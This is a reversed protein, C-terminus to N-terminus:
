NRSEEVAKRTAALYAYGYRQDPELHAGEAWENWANIFVFREQEPQTKKAYTICDKLWETYLDPTCGVYVAGNSFTKRASNDWSPFCGKYLIGGEPAPMTMYEKNKLFKTLDVVTLSNDQIFISRPQIVGKGGLGHPVFEVMGDVHWDKSSYATNGPACANTMLLHLRPIGRKAAEEQLGDAFMKFQENTFLSPRYVILVPHQNIRIYREDNLFPLIDEIFDAASNAEMKQEMIVNRNGGDWLTSWNENAWCLCFPLDLEKNNLWNFLPKELLRKDKGFWYYYFCFGYIGYQKALEIQRYMVDDHSLDYFGVDIPLQPQHHGFFQPKAKTVNTWETFGRGFNKDNLPIAHFQPLYFALVKADGEQREYTDTALPVFDEVHRDYLAGITDKISTDVDPQKTKKAKCQYKIGVIRITKSGDEHPQEKYFWRPINHIFSM